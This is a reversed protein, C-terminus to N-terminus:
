EIMELIKLTKSDAHAEATGKALRNAWESIYKQDQENPFRAYFLAFFKKRQLEELKYAWAIKNLMNFRDFEMYILQEKM